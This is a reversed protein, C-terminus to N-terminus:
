VRTLLLEAAACCRCRLPLSAATDCYRRLLAATVGGCCRRLLWPVGLIYIHATPEIRVHSYLAERLEDATLLACDEVGLSPIGRIHLRAGGSGAGGAADGGAGDSRRRARAVAVAPALWHLKGGVAGHSEERM